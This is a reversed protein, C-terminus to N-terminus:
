ILPLGRESAVASRFPEPKVWMGRGVESDSLEFVELLGLFDLMRKKLRDSVGEFTKKSCLRAHTCIFFM